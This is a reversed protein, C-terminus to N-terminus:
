TRYRFNSEKKFMSLFVILLILCCLWVAKVGLYLSVSMGAAAGIIFFLIISFYQLSMNAAKVDKATVSLYLQEAASRLNGTCMTSAYALGNVKRFSEIQMACVLSILVNALINLNGAPILGVLLLILLEIFISVQRWHILQHDKFIRRAIEAIIVGIVFALIPILYYIAEGINGKAINLGLLVINGTQANAFVNGRSTYTYADLYGGVIALLIGLFLSDSMQRNKINKM